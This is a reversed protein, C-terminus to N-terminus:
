DDGVAVAPAVAVFATVVFAFLATVGGVRAWATDFGLMLVLGLALCAVATGLLARGRSV